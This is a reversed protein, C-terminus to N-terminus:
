SDGKTQSNRSSRAMQPQRGLLEAAWVPWDTCLGDVGWEAFERWRREARELPFGHIEPSIAFIIKGAQKLRFVDAKRAWLSDFEDLWVIEACDISLAQDISEGHRDSARAALRVHPHLSRFYRATTGPTREILEFDFLFAQQVLDHQVLFEVLQDEYGAEKVNVAVPQRPFQRWLAAHGTATRESLEGSLETARDHSIYLDGSDTRRIDTEIGFGLGLAQKLLEPSNELSGSIGSLNGRHALIIM